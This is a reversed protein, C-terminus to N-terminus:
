FIHVVNLKVAVIKWEKQIGSSRVHQVVLPRTNRMTMGTFRETRIEQPSIDQKYYPCNVM